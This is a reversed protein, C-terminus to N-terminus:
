TKPRTPPEVLTHSLDVLTLSGSTHARCTPSPGAESRDGTVPHVTFPPYREGNLAVLCLTYQPPLRPADSREPIRRAYSVGSREDGLSCPTDHSRERRTHSRERRTHDNGAPSFFPRATNSVWPCAWAWAQNMTSKCNHNHLFFSENRETSALTVPVPPHLSLHSLTSPRRRDWVGAAM